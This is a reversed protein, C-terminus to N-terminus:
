SCSFLCAKFIVHMVILTKLMQKIIIILGKRAASNMKGIDFRQVDHRMLTWKLLDRKILKFLFVYDTSDYTTKKSTPKEYEPYSHFLMVDPSLVSNTHVSPSILLAPSLSKLM